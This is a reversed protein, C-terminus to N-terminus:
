PSTAWTPSQLRQEHGELELMHRVKTAQFGTEARLRVAVQLLARHPDILARATRHISSKSSEPM